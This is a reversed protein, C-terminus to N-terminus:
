LWRPHKTKQVPPPPLFYCGRVAVEHTGQSITSLKNLTLDYSYGVWMFMSAKNNYVQALPKFGLLVAASESTRYMLGGYFKDKYIYRANVDASFKVLDTRGLVNIDIDGDSSGVGKFKYGGMVFYHRVTTLNINKLESQSLHTTSLGVYYNQRGKWYLGANLDVSTGSVKTNSLLNDVTNTPPVWTPDSGLNVMGGAIGIGLVGANAIPLHYSYSLTLNNQRQFGIADHYFSVGVGSAFPLFSSLDADANFVASNPAGNVKDWQNRYILSACIANDMGAAAPNVSVKDYMFHTLLKEQQGFSLGTTLAVFASIVLLKQKM